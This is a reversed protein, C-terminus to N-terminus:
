LGGYRWLEMMFRTRYLDLLLTFDGVTYTYHLAIFHVCISLTLERSSKSDVEAVKTLVNACARANRM